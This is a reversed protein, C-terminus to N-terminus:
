GQKRCKPPLLVYLGKTGEPSAHVAAAVIADSTLEQVQRCFDQYSADGSKRVGLSLWADGFWNSLECSVGSIASGPPAGLRAPKTANCSLRDAIQRDVPAPDDADLSLMILAPVQNRDSEFFLVGAPARTSKLSTMRELVTPDPVPLDLSELLAAKGSLTILRQERSRRLWADFEEFSLGSLEEAEVSHIQYLPSSKEYVARLAFPQAANNASYGIRRWYAQDKRTALFELESASQRLLYGVAGRLCDLRREPNPHSVGIAFDGFLDLFQVKLGCPSVGRLQGANDMVLEALVEQHIHQERISAGEPLAVHYSIWSQENEPSWRWSAVPVVKDPLAVPSSLAAVGMIPFALAAVLCAIWIQWAPKGTQHKRRSRM